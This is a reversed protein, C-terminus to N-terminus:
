TKEIRSRREADEPHYGVQELYKAVMEAPVRAAMSEYKLYKDLHPWRDHNLQSGFYDWWVLKAVCSRVSEPLQEIDNAWQQPTKTLKFKM